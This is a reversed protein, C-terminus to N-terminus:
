KETPFGFQPPKPLEKNQGVTMLLQVFDVAGRMLLHGNERHAVDMVYALLCAQILRRNSENDSFASAVRRGEDTQKYYELPIIASM